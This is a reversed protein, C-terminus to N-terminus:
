SHKHTMPSPRVEAMLENDSESGPSPSAISHKPSGVAKEEESENKDVLDLVISPIKSPEEQITVRPLSRRRVSPGLQSTDNFGTDSPNSRKRKDFAKLIEKTIVPSPRGLTGDESTSPVVQAKLMQELASNILRLSDMEEKQSTDNFGTDTPNRRKRKDFAKLIERTIIPSPRGLTGDDSTSPVVQAKLLQELASNILRLSDM